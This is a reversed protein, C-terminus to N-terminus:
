LFIDHKSPNKKEPQSAPKKKCLSVTILPSTDRSLTPVSASLSFNKLLKSFNGTNWRSNLTVKITVIKINTHYGVASHRHPWYETDPYYDKIIKL